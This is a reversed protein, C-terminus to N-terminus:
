VYKVTINISFYYRYKGSGTNTEEKELFIPEGQDCFCSIFGSITANDLATYISNALTLGTSFTLNRVLITIHSEKITSADGIFRSPPPGSAEMLLVSNDGGMIGWNYCFLNTAEVLSLGAAALFSSVIEIANSM